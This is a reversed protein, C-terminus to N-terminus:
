LPKVFLFADSADEYYRPVRRLKRFAHKQYFALAPTNSVKVM